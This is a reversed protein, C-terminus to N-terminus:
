SLNSRTKMILVYQQFPLCLVCILVFRYGAKVAAAKFLKEFCVFLKGNSKGVSAPSEVRKICKYMCDHHSICM